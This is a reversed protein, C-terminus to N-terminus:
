ALPPEDKTSEVTTSGGNQTHGERWARHQDKTQEAMHEVGTVNEGDRVFARDHPQAMGDEGPDELDNHSTQVETVGIAPAPYSDRGGPRHIDTDSPDSMAPSKRVPNAPTPSAGAPDFPTRAM